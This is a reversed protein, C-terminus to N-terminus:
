HTQNLRGDSLPPTEFKEVIRFPHRQVVREIDPQEHGAVVIFNAPQRRVRQYQALTLEIQEACQEDSCECTFSLMYNQKSRGDLIESALKSAQDNRLRFVMENEARNRQSKTM